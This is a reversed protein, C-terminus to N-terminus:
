YLNNHNQQLPPSHLYKSNESHRPERWRGRGGDKANGRDGGQGGDREREREDPSAQPIYDDVHIKKRERSFAFGVFMCDATCHSQREWLLFCCSFM